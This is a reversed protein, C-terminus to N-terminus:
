APYTPKQQYPYRLHMQLKQSIFFVCNTITQNRGSITIPPRNLGHSPYRTTAIIANKKANDNKAPLYQHQFKHGRPAKKSITTDFILAFLGSGFVKTLCCNRQSTKTKIIATTVNRRIRVPPFRNIIPETNTPIHRTVVTM